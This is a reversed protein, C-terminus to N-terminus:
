EPIEYTKMMGKGKVDCMVERCKFSVHLADLNNKVSETMRIHLPTCNSEMRSAVNVTDGWIDYIFKNKGIVGAIVKGSNLGIRLRFKIKATKNYEALDKYMGIAFKLMILAHKENPVPVGCAAMYADGITKIKEVGMSEARRDFRSILDNLSSVIDEASANSTTNTFGVIDSFLVTVNEFSDAITKDGGIGKLREAISVPLINKLLRDSDDKAMQLEVTAMQIKTELMLQRKKNTRNVGIFIIVIVILVFAALAIWFVTLQYFHAKQLFNIYLPNGSFDGESNQVDAVFTYKGPALNTYNVSRRETMDCYEKDFGIMKYTFRNRESATFSLGTYQIQIHKADPPIVITEDFQTYEADDVMVSVGQIIPLVKSSRVRVPDYIAFGDTLTFWIRGYSDIMSLATSNAGNTKLGDNQTFYKVNLVNKEKRIVENLDSEAVNSIGRNSIMWIYGTKDPIMQFISDSGLGNESTLTTIDLDVVDSFFRNDDRYFRSIGSGTCVWFVGETDQRIKFIVNGTLGDSTTIVKAIEEDKLVYIGGGDTGVWIFDKEDEYICMIYECDFGNKNTYNKITGDAKIVSLGTTTGCWIDGNSAEISVRTKNGSLGDDATWEQIGNKGYRIQAPSTYCNVLLDGNKTLEIHRIRIGATYETLENSVYSDNEYCMVGNDTGLWVKGDKDECIANVAFPLKNMRFKGPSIKGVGSKDTALWVNGERDGMIKAISASSLENDDSYESFEGDRFLILGKETGFWISGSDDAYISWTITSDLITGTEIKVVSGNGAKYIGKQSLGFWFNGSNDQGIASVIYDEQDNFNSYRTFSNDKYVFLGKNDATLLWMKGATDCYLHNVLVQSVNVDNSAPTIIEGNQNIYVVGSATGVWINGNKDETISRISNNPLGNETTYFVDETPTIKQVGEDNSGIWINKKSDEFLTRASIFGYKRDSKVESYKNITIFDFGDFKVLGEYTGFYMYGDSTQMIDAISNGPLGDATSWTRAVYDNIGAFQAFINFSLFVFLFSSIIIKKM